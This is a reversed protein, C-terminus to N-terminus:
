IHFIQLLAIRCLKIYLVPLVTALVTPDIRQQILTRRTLDHIACIKPHKEERAYTHSTKKLKYIVRIACIKPHKEQRAYAHSTKKCKYIIRVNECEEYCM